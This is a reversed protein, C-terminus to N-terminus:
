LNLRVLLYTEIVLYIHILFVWFALLWSFFKDRKYFLFSIVFNILIILLGGLPLYLIKWWQGLLDVGFVINYHLFLRGVSPKVNLLIYLWIFVQAIISLLLPLLVRPDRLYLKLYYFM